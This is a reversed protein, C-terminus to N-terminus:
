NDLALRLKYKEQITANVIIVDVDTQQEFYFITM